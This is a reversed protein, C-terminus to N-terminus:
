RRPAAGARPAPPRASLALHVQQVRLGVVGLAGCVLAASVLLASVLSRRVRPDQERHLTQRNTVAVAGARAAEREPRPPQGAGRRGRARPAVARARRIGRGRPTRFTQKVMRDEGSHFAIVGLRGGRALLPPRGPPGTPPRWARRQRGHARGPLHPDRRAAAAALGRPSGGGARRRRPRGHHRASPSARHRARHPARLAGRRVRPPHRALEAEPLRNLLTAAPEGRTPDLRM